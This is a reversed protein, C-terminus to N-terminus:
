RGSYGSPAGMEGALPARAASRDRSLEGASDTRGGVILPAGPVWKRSEAARRPMQAFLAQLCVAMIREYNAPDRVKFCQVALGDGAPPEVLTVKGDDGVAIRVPVFEYPRVRRDEPGPAAQAVWRGPGAEVVQRGAAHLMPGTCWMNRRMAWVREKAPPEPAQALYAIPDAQKPKTLAYLFFNQLGPPATELVDAQRFAWYTAYGRGPQSPGREFCPCWYVPLGSRLVRVYAERDLGVNYEKGGAADGINVYLRGVKRRFLEGDRNVAAAVDRLSGTTFITVREDSRRLVDLMLAVGGQFQAAQDRGDDEPSALARGLGVAFPVKRGTLHMMQEVPIRGPQKLQRDGCDLIIGRVDLEAIAFLTALDFHDDPDQHPHHLDTSYLIPVARAADGGQNALAAALLLHAAM